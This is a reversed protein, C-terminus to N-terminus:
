IVEALEARMEVAQTLLMRMVVMLVAAGGAAVGAVGFMLVIGPAADGPALAVGATLLCLTVVAMCGIIVDVERFSRAEFVTSQRVRTLLRWMCVLVVQAALTGVVVTVAGVLSLDLVRQASWMWVVDRLARPIVFVQAWLVALFVVAITAKCALVSLRASTGQRGRQVDM